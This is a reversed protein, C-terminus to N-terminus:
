SSPRVANISFRLGTNMPRYGKSVLRARRVRRGMWWAVFPLVLLSGPTIIFLVVGAAKLCQQQREAGLHFLTM